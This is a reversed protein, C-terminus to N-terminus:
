NSEFLRYYAEPDSTTDTATSAGDSGPVEQWDPTTLSTTKQLKVGVAGNWSITVNSGNRVISNIVLSPSALSYFGVDDVGFYWSDTGAHAFRLRVKPQNDAQPLRFLEVRKSEVPNDDVRRSIYPALTSWQNSSVGIFAGYYGGETLGSVSDVYYATDANINTLTTLADISGDLNTAVDPRDLMYVVPLWTTGSDISYEVAGMSDQNQEWLSHFSLYVNNQGTLDFDPSFLYLVQGLADSRYGSDGFVLNGTALNRIFVGNVVNSPNVTLVRHYDTTWAPPPPNFNYFDSYVDFAGTFRSAEVVIWNTYADSDLNTINIGPESFPDRLTDLSVSTWGAPLSGEETSDFDEFVIPAPLQIDVYAM